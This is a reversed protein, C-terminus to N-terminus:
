SKLKLSSERLRADLENKYAEYYVLEFPRRPKTSPVQGKQHEAFRRRLNDTSGIYGNSDKLSKLVYVYYM